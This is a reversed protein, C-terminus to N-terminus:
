DKTVWAGPYAAALANAEDKRLSPLHATYTEPKNPATKLAEWTKEGVIGDATLGNDKQFAKVAAETAKGFDGDIGYSGLDYGRNSLATQLEKVYNGKNGRKLTPKFPEVVPMNTMDEEGYDVGKLEGWYTWKGGTITTTIVGSNTGAAEIVTDNGVYLGVHGKNSENGTFVATAPKLPQGDTRGNKTLTGKSTCYKDWMTNSGHYMYGGLQKFAWSFLGSCDAVVRGIWKAGNLAGRYKDHEKAKKNDKWLAGFTDVFWKVLANQKSETWKEGAKGWIYGWKNNLAYRFKEILAAASIM